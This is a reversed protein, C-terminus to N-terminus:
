NRSWHYFIYINSQSESCILPERWHPYIVGECSVAHGVPIEYSDYSKLWKSHDADQDWLGDWKETSIKLPWKTRTDHQICLSVTIDLSPRDTHIKLFSGKNYIRAYSNEFKVSYGYHPKLFDELRSVFNFSEPLNFVGSSNQYFPAGEPQLKESGLVKNSLIKSEDNSIVQGFNIAM